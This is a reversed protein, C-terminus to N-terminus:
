KILTLPYANLISNTDIKATLISNDYIDYSYEENVKVEEIAAKLAATVHFKTFNIMAEEIDSKLDNPLIYDCNKELFEKVSM